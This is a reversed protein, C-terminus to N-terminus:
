AVWYECLRTNYLGVAARMTVSSGGIFLLVAPLRPRVRAVSFPRPYTVLRVPNSRTLALTDAKSHMAKVADENQFNGPM